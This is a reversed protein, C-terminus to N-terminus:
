SNPLLFLPYPAIFSLALRYSPSTKGHKRKGEQKPKSCRAAREVVILPSTKRVRERTLLSTHGWETLAHEVIQAHAIKRGVRLFGVQPSHGLEGLMEAFRRVEQSRGLNPRVQQRQRLFAAAPTREVLDTAGQMEEVADSQLAVPRGALDDAGFCRLAQRDHEAPVFYGSEETDDAVQLM